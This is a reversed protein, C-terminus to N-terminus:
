SDLKFSFTVLFLELMLRFLELMGDSINEYHLFTKALTFKSRLVHVFVCVTCKRYHSDLGQIAAQRLQRSHSGGGVMWGKWTGRQLNGYCGCGRASCWNSFLWGQSLLTFHAQCLPLPTSPPTPASHCMHLLYPTFSFSFFMFPFCTWVPDNTKCKILVFGQNM